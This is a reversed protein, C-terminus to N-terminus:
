KKLMFSNLIKEGTEKLSEFKNQETTFTLAYAKENIVWYYQEFMLHLASQDGSFIIKHYESSNKKERKSEILKSNTIMTKIQEESIEAYQDLDINKGALDQILLNVNERFADQESEILSFLIFTTGLQGSQDLQWTSPYQITYAPEDLVKLDRGDPLSANENFAYGCFLACVSALFLLIKKM